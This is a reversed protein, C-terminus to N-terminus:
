EKDRPSEPDRREIGLLSNFANVFKDPLLPELLHGIVWGVFFAGAAVYFAFGKVMECQDGPRCDQQLWGFVAIIAAFIGILSPV